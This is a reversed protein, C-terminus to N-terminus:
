RVYGRYELFNVFAIAVANSVVDGGVDFFVPPANHTSVKDLFVKLKNVGKLSM